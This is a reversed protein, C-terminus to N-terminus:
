SERIVVDLAMWADAAAAGDVDVCLTYGTGGALAPYSFPRGGDGALLGAANVAGTPCSLTTRRDAGDIVLTSDAPVYSAFVPPGADCPDLTEVPALAPNTWFVAKAHRLASAGAYITLVPVAEVRAPLAPVDICVRKRSFPTCAECGRSTPVPLAPAAPPACMPDVTLCDGAPSCEDEDVPCPEGPATRVWTFVNDVAPGEWPTAAAVPAPDRFTYPLGAGMTWQVRLVEAAGCGCNRGIRDIVEVGGTVAARKVTRWYPGYLEPYTPADACDEDPEPPICDLYRLETDVQARLAARLWRLGYAVSCCDKGLLVGTVAIEPAAHRGRAVAAGIGAHENVTRRYVGPGLGEVATILVGGFAQSSPEAPDYWGARDNAPTTWGGDHGLAQPLGPAEWCDRVVRGPAQAWGHQGYFAAQSSVLELDGIRLYGDYPM